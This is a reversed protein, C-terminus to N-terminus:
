VNKMFNEIWRTNLNPNELWYRENSPHRGNEDKLLHREEQTLESLYQRFEVTIFSYTSGGLKLDWLLQYKKEDDRENWEDEVTETILRKETKYQKLLKDFEDKLPSLIESYLLFCRKSAKLLEERKKKKKEKYAVILSKITYNPILTKNPMKLNTLPSTMKTELWHEIAQKEYTYGDTAVVPNEMIQFTIPCVFNNTTVEFLSEEM